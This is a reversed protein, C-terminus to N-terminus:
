GYARADGSEPVLIVHRGLRRRDHDAPAIRSDDPGRDGSKTPGLALRREFHGIRRALIPRGELFRRIDEAMVGASSYRASPSPSMAKMIVTELDRPIRRDVLRPLIPAEHLIKRILEPQDTAAFAPRMTALEYLTVGLAYIDSRRDAIGEFREPAMFRLTGVLDRSSTLDDGGILKALGFDAVWVHGAQDLYSTRLSSTGTSSARITPMPWHRPLRFVLRRSREIIPYIATDLFRISTSEM